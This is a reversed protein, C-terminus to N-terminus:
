KRPAWWAKSAKRSPLSVVYQGNVSLYGQYWDLSAQRPRPRTTEVLVCLIPSSPNHTFGNYVWAPMAGAHADAREQLRRYLGNPAFRDFLHQAGAAMAVLAGAAILAELPTM